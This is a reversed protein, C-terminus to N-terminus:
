GNVQAVEVERLKAEFSRSTSAGLYRDPVRRCSIFADGPPRGIQGRM